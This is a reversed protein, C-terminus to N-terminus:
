KRSDLGRPKTQMKQELSKLLAKLNSTHSRELRKIFVSLAIFKGCECHGMLKTHPARM